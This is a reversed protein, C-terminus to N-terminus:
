IPRARNKVAAISAMRRTRIARFFLSHPPTPPPSRQPERAAHVEGVVFFDAVRKAEVVQNQPQLLLVTLGRQDHLEPVEGSQTDGFCDPNEANRRGCDFVFPSASRRSLAPASRTLRVSFISVVVAAPFITKRSSATSLSNSRSRALSRVFDARAWLAAFPSRVPSMGYPQSKAGSPTCSM